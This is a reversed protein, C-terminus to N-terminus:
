PFQDFVFNLSDLLPPPFICARKIERGGGVARKKKEQLSQLWGQQVYSNTLTKLRQFGIKPVSKGV